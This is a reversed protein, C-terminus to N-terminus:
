IEDSTDGKKVNAVSANMTSTHLADYFDNCCMRCFNKLQYLDETADICACRLAVQEIKGVNRLFFIYIKKYENILNIDLANIDKWNINSKTIATKMEEDTFARCMSFFENYAATSIMSLTKLDGYCRPNKLIYKILYQKFNKIMNQARTEFEAYTINM